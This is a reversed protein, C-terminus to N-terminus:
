AEEASAGLLQPNRVASQPNPLTPADTLVLDTRALLSELSLSGTPFGAYGSEVGDDPDEGTSDNTASRPRSFEWFDFFVRAFPDLNEPRRVFVARLALFFDTPDTVDIKTLTRAADLLHGPTAPLGAARLAAAFNTLHRTLTHVAPGSGSLPEPDCWPENP